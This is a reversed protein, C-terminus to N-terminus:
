MFKVIYIQFFDATRKKSEDVNSSNQGQHTFELTTTGSESSTRELSIQQEGSHLQKTNESSQLVEAERKAKRVRDEHKIM